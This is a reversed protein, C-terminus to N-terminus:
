KAVIKFIGFTPGFANLDSCRPPKQDAFQLKTEFDVNMRGTKLLTLPGFRAWFLLHDIGDQTWNVIAFTSFCHWDGFGLNLGMSFERAGLSPRNPIGFFFSKKLEHQLGQGM